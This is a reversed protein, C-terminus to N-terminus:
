MFPAAHRSVTMGPRHAADFGSDRSEPSADEIRGPIVILAANAGSAILVTQAYVRILVLIGLLLAM